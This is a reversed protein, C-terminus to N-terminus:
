AGVGIGVGSGEGPGVGPGVRAGVGLGTFGSEGGGAGAGAGLGVSGANVGEVLGDLRGVLCGVGYGVGEGVEVGLAEGLLLLLLGLTYGLWDTNGLSFGLLDGLLLGDGLTAGLSLLLGLEGGVLAGIALLAGGEDLRPSDGVSLGALLWGPASPPVGAGLALSCVPKGVDTGEARRLSVARVTGGVSPGVITPEVCHTSTFSLHLFSRSQQRTLPLILKAQRLLFHLTHRWRPSFHEKSLFSQQEPRHLCPFHLFTMRCGLRVILGVYTLLPLGVRTGLKVREGVGKQAM